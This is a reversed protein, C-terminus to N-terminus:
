AVAIFLHRHRNLYLWKLCAPRGICCHHKDATIGALQDKIYVLWFIAPFCYLMAPSAMLHRLSEPRLWLFRLDLKAKVTKKTKEMYGVM